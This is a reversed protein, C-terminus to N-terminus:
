SSVMIYKFLVRNNWIEMTESNRKTYVVNEQINIYVIVYM